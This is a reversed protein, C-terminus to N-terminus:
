IGHQRTWFGGTGRDNSIQQELDWAPKYVTRMHRQQTIRLGLDEAHLSNNLFPQMMTRMMLVPLIKRMAVAELVVQIDALRANTQVAAGANQGCPAQRRATRSIHALM